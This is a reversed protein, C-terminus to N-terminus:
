ETVRLTSPIGKGFVDPDYMEEAQVPMKVFEGIAIAQATYSLRYNGASLYESYFRVSDHRLEKHYFSWRSANYSNWDSFQFWWSGGSATFKSKDADITSTTALDRNVPELGGPVPDDVVVFNRSTPLSLFLDVRVLQGRKIVSTDKLLIWKGDREVSYERRIDIGANSRKSYEELPAFSMRTSYYLRGSGKKELTVKARKGPDNKNIPRNFEASDIFDSFEKEGFLNSDFYAKVSMNPSTEEFKKSYDVLANMCFMNEQTNEWHERNGRTQTITRVLKFPINGIEKELKSSSIKTFSSLIACNARLPTALIRSYSDDLTENFMFKGATQSSTGLIADATQKVIEGTKDLKLAAMMYHAKGFLSMQPLHPRYRELDNKGVAGREALAALAIARVTSAMGKSYFEPMVDRKLLNLLYKHLKEEVITPIKYGAKSLWNFALATYASLYPSVYVDAPIYYVMGGNPAQFGSAIDLTEQPLNNSDPWSFGKEIYKELNLYHSAMVGKTLKQEWCIYPYDRMYHFAGEANGIVTASAVVSVGGVDHHINKPFLLSEEVHNEVTTSYNAATELSRRKGVPLTHSLGDQDTNDGAIVEFRVSGSQVNRDTKIPKTLVPVEIKIRKYPEATVTQSHTKASSIAIDGEIKINATLERTKDTRNMVTFGATFSDGETVQNPLAPRIETPLNVKFHGEGLGMRDTPTVAMVLVRWGTLNDPVSFKFNANGDSNTKISPNWYSVFKFLSRMSLNAGGGGGGSNAGKKEFKQRGVLRTLLSYNQLDLSELKYFGKYPDFKTKGGAILDFVAEDLVAVALEVPENAASHRPKATLAVKVIQRPKYVEKEVAVDIEIEKFPDKVHVPLYGMRFTPKGLDVNGDGLPKEVRPSFIIVSLYFGPLFDPEVPFEIVPSSGDLKQTWHKIVGYREISILAQASPFPNKILYKATEGIKYTEKEPVIELSGNESEHWVVRGKGVVWIRIQSQHTEGLTDSITATLRYSGSNQPIFDCLSYNDTPTGTCKGAPKWTDVYETKYANGASKVRSAMTVLREVEIEVSTDTVPVGGEDVVLYQISATKDQHYLWHPSKLGVFRNVASFTAKTSAAIFKGRDDKVANEAFLTGYIINHGDLEFSSKLEGNDNMSETKNYITYSNRSYQKPMYFSFGKAKPHKSFFSKEKLQATVRSSANTYPGGSHLKASASIEVQDGPHFIKGNLENEVRFPSPTFESVLVRLPTWSYKTYNATLQFTYWGISGNKPISYEGDYAGFESLSVDKIEEVTKGMPDVIKLKYGDKPAPVFTDENQNRVYLKYQITDGARYVGQATAGWTKIHGHLKKKWPYVTYGSHNYTDVPFRRDDLPMLALDDDKDVRVFLRTTNDDYWGRNFTKMEPDLKDIGDLLATGKADTLAEGLVNEQQNLQALSSKYIKVKAGSISEGTVLDTVWVLSNFHGLKVHVQFPTVQAFLTRQYKPKQVHPKTSIEGYVAGSRENLFSRVGIPIPFSVDEVDPVKVTTSQKVKSDKATISRYNFNMEELNTVYLPIKTDVQKELVATKHALHFDPDRHNTFFTLDIPNTLKRGFEDHFFNEQDDSEPKLNIRYEHAAKLMEPLYIDYTRNKRHYGNLQSYDYSNAWPDYDKRGGALDPSIEIYTKIKSNLIPSSFSLASGRLPNCKNKSQSYNENTILIRANNEGTCRIGLFKFEPFTHFTKIIREKAGTEPGLASVLGPEINLLIKTDLPLEEDPYALWVRRAERDGIKLPDDDSKVAKQNGFDLLYGEGSPFVFRPKIRDHPDPEARLKFRTSKINELSLFVHKEVSEKSVSQNFTIRFVPIGPSKWNSPRAYRIDPRKTIFTHSKVKAITSGDETKIGPEVSLKYHTSFQMSNNNDLQCALASTNLWRWQCNLPPTITIPIEESSREMRGLAVVPRNFQLVIQRGPSVDEGTPTIRFIKLPLSSDLEASSVFPTTVITVLIAFLFVPRYVFRLLM